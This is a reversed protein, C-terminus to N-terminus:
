GRQRKAMLLAKALLVFRFDRNGHSLPLLPKKREGKDRKEGIKDGELSKLHWGIGIM